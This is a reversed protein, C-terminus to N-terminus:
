TNFLARIKLLRAATAGRGNVFFLPQFGGLCMRAHIDNPLYPFLRPGLIPIDGINGFFKYTRVTHLAADSLLEEDLPSIENPHPLSQYRHAWLRVYNSHAYFDQSTHLLRGFARWARSTNNEEAITTVVLCRKQEIYDLAEEIKNDLFHHKPVFVNSIIDDKLM